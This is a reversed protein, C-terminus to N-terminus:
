TMAYVDVVDSDNTTAIFMNKGHLFNIHQFKGQSASLLRRCYTGDPFLQHIAPPDIDCIYMYGEEDVTSCVPQQIEKCSTVFEIKQGEYQMKVVEGASKLGLCSVYIVGSKRDARLSVPKRFAYNFKWTRKDQKRLVAVDNRTTYILNGDVYEVGLCKPKSHLTIVEIVEEFANDVVEVVKIVNEDPITVAIRSKTGPVNAINHPHGRLEIEHTVELSSNLLILKENKQDCLVINGNSLEVTDTINHIHEDRSLPVSKCRIALKRDMPEDNRFPRPSIFQPTTINGPSVISQSSRRLTPTKRDSVSSSSARRPVQRTSVSDRELQSRQQSRCTDLAEELMNTHDKEITIDSNGAYTFDNVKNGGTVPVTEIDNKNTAISKVTLLMSRRCESVEVDREQQTISHASDANRGQRTRSRTISETNIGNPTRPLILSSEDETSHSGGNISHSSYTGVSSSTQQTNNTSTRPYDTDDSMESIDALVECRNQDHKRECSVYGLTAKCDNRKKGIIETLSINKNLRLKPDFDTIKDSDHLNLKMNNNCKVITHLRNANNETHRNSEIQRVFITLTTLATELEAHNDKLERQADEIKHRTERCLEEELHHILEVVTKVFVRIEDIIQRRRSVLKNQIQGIQLLTHELNHKKNRLKELIQTESQKFQITTLYKNIDHVKTYKVRTNRHRYDQFCTLCYLEETKENYHTVTKGSHKQCYTQKYDDNFGNNGGNQNNSHDTHVHVSACTGM